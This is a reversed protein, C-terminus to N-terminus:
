TVDSTGCVLWLCHSAHLWVCECTSSNCIWGPLFFSCTLANFPCHFLFHLGSPWTLTFFCTSHQPDAMQFWGLSRTVTVCLWRQLMLGLRMWVQWHKDTLVEGSSYFFSLPFLSFSGSHTFFACLWLKSFWSTTFVADPDASVIIDRFSPILFLFITAHFSLNTGNCSDKWIHGRGSGGKGEHAGGTHAHRDCSTATDGGRAPGGAAWREQVQTTESVEEGDQEHASPARRQVPHPRTREHLPRQQLVGWVTNFRLERIQGRVCLGQVLLHIHLRQVNVAPISSFIIINWRQM